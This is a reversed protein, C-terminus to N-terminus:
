FNFESRFFVGQDLLEARSPGVQGLYFWEEFLYGVSFRMRDEGPPAWRLGTEFSLHDVAQTEHANAAGGLVPTGGSSFTEEFSQDIRGLILGYDLKAFASLGPLEFRRAVEVAIHPGAGFFNNSTREEKFFGNARSDFYIDAIRVGAQWRLDWLPCLSFEHSRYDLDIVNLNVRSRLMASGLADFRPINDTGESVLLRYSALFEGCGEPLRYGVDFRPAATWDLEAQPVHVIDTGRGPIHVPAVLHNNIHPAVLAIDV